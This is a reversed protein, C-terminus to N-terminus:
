PLERIHPVFRPKDPVAPGPVVQGPFELGTSPSFTAIWPEPEPRRRRREALRLLAAELADIM